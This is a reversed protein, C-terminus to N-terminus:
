RVMMDDDVNGQVLHKKKLAEEMMEVRLILSTVDSRTMAELEKVMGLMQAFEIRHNLFMKKNVPMRLVM